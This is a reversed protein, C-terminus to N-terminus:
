VEPYSEFHRGWKTNRAHIRQLRKGRLPWWLYDHYLYSGFILTYVLPTRVLIKQLAKLPGFWIADGVRSAMNDGVSFGFNEEAIDHGLVDIEEMKGTGWGSKDALRIYDIAMPDFGMMRAAVADIAASDASALMFDKEVPVMTRPGPGNGCLTADMVSFIGSHIEKQIALLDALTQHIWSHTYHRKTNLLGGFANKMAGTTTTYIHTKLTPLHLINKGVFYEPIRIGEPYIRHLVRMPANPTYRMWSIDRPDFNFLEKVGYKRYIPTLRNLRGGKHPNTVVTDNHVAVIDRYGADRLARIVGELQWPTTNASLFPLHWTINDKLITPRDRPLSERFGALEMLRQIDQMVRQPSTKVVAVSSRSM